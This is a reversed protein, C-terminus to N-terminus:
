DQNVAPRPYYVIGSALTQTLVAQVGLTVASPESQKLLDLATQISDRPVAIWQQTM